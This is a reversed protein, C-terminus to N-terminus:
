KGPGLAGGAVWRRCSGLAPFPQGWWEGDEVLWVFPGPRGGVFRGLSLAVGVVALSLTWEVESQRPACSHQSWLAEYAFARACDLQGLRPGRVEPPGM